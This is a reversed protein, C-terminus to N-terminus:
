PGGLDSDQGARNKSPHGLWRRGSFLSLDFELSEESGAM